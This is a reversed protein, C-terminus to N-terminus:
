VTNIITVRSTKDPLKDMLSPTMKNKRMTSMSSLNTKSM